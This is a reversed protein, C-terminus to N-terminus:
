LSIETKRYQEHLQCYPQAGRDHCAFLDDISRKLNLAPCICNSKSYLM